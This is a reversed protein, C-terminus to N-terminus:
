TANYVHRVVLATCRSTTLEREDSAAMILRLRKIARRPDGVVINESLPVLKTPAERSSRQRCSSETLSYAVLWLITQRKMGGADGNMPPAHSLSTRVTFVARSDQRVFWVIFSSTRIVSRRSASAITLELGSM